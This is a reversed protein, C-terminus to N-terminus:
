GGQSMYLGVVAVANYVGHLLIPPWLSGTAQYLWALLMGMLIIPVMVGPTLHVLGFIVSSLVLGAALGWRDRLGAFLFGRFFIEEAVPAIIGAALLAALMGLPGEGFVLVLDPQGPLGYREMVWTWGVNVALIAVFALGAYTLSRLWRPRQLGLAKPGVGYKRLGWWWVPPIMLAELGFVALALLLQQESTQLDLGAELAAAVVLVFGIAMLAISALSASVM